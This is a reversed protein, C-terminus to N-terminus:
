RAPKLGAFMANTITLGIIEAAKQNAAAFRGFSQQQIAAANQSLAQMCSQSAEMFARITHEQIIRASSLWLQETNARMSDTYVSVIKSLMEQYPNNAGLELAPAFNPYTATTM